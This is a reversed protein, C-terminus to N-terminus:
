PITSIATAITMMESSMVIVSSVTSVNSWTVVLPTFVATPVSVAFETEALMSDYRLPMMLGSSEANLAPLGDPDWVRVVDDGHQPAPCGPLPFELAWVRGGVGPEGLEVGARVAM